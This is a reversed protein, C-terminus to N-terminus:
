DNLILTADFLNNIAQPNKGVPKQIPDNNIIQTADLFDPVPKSPAKHKIGKPAQFEGEKKNPIKFNDNNNLILTADFLGM